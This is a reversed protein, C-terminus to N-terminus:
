APAPGGRGFAGAIAALPGDATVLAAALAAAALLGLMTADLGAIEPVALAIMDPDLVLDQLRLAGSVGADPLAACASAAAAADTAARGCVDVLGLKGYTFVWAPLQAIETRDAIMGLVSLRAYAALAPAATLILSAFLLGWVASWRAARLTPQMFHRSLVSPLSAVGLAIGLVLGLVNLPTLSLFPTLIPKLVAPDALDQVLLTEELGQIQWLANAYAIQPVPLGYREFSIQM